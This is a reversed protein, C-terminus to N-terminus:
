GVAGERQGAYRSLLGGFAGLRTMYLTVGEERGLERLRGVVEGPVRFWEEGGRGSRVAPRAHDGQVEVAGGGGGGEGEGGGGATTGRRGRGRLGGWGSEGTGWRGRWCRM